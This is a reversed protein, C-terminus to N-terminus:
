DQHVALKAENLSLKLVKSIGEEQMTVGYLVDAVEMTGRRHTIAIIQTENVFRTLYRSFRSVNVEDLSSDIEDLICFPAPNVKLISFFITIAVLAQEGGSLSSLNKIIKGPPQADIEIGSELIDNEDTLYLRASGGSFMETFVRKFNDNIKRFSDIFMEKMEVTLNEILINLQDMSKRVDDMQNKMFEHRESVEKYEEISSLNVTGLARIRSRLTSVDQRLKTLSEYKVTLLDAQQKTLEYDEWLKSVASDFDKQLSIKREELRSIEKAINERDRSVRNQKERLETGNKEIELRENVANEIEKKLEVINQRLSEIDRKRGEIIEKRDENLKILNNSTDEASRSRDISRQSDEEMLKMMQELNEIDKSVRVRLIKLDSIKESLIIKENSFSDDAMKKSAENEEILKIRDRVEILEVKRKALIREHEGAEKLVNDMEIRSVSFINKTQEVITKYYKGETEAKLIKSNVNILESEYVTKNAQLENTEAKLKEYRSVINVDEESLKVLEKKLEDAERRRGFIGSSKSSSGGTYSGGSNIMQGDLTVVRYRHRMSKAVKSAINLDEAVVTRGLLNSVVDKIGEDCQVLRDAIGVVGELELVNVADFNSPKIIDIPLFTARGANESKLMSIAEKASTEDKVIVNQMAAGLAVEIANECGHKIKILSSVPGVIGRLIGKRGAKVVTRVSSQFGEMNKEMENFIHIKNEIRSIRSKLDDIQKEYEALKEQRKSLLSEHGEITNLVESKEISLKKLFEEIKSMEDAAVKYDKEYGPLNTKLENLRNELTRSESEITAISVKIETDESYLALLEKETEDIQRNREDGEISLKELESEMKEIDSDIGNLERKKEEIENLKADIKLTIISTSGEIDYIDTRLSEIQKETNALDSETTAVEKEIQTIEESLRYIDENKLTIKEGINSIKRFNEETAQEIEKLSSEANQYDGKATEIRDEQEFLLKRNRDITDCYLTVELEKKRESIKIFERAKESQAKLPGIRIDLEDFIDKLREINENAKQLKREAETKRYRYKAIGSAEEFILRRDTNKAAVIEAVRGQEIVSYGDRSMGTNLFTERIDKLRVLAGNLLYESEGSRYFKRTVTIEEDFDEIRGDENSLCITVEAYGMPNRKVTGGFIVDEMKGSRLSKTSQEGLVWRMADSINSKGSGNPGVIATIEKEFSLKTKEPFSKFGHIEIYKLHM